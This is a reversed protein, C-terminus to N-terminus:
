GPRVSVSHRLPERHGPVVVEPMPREGLEDEGLRAVPAVPRARTGDRRPRPRPAQSPYLAVAVPAVDEGLQGDQAQRM